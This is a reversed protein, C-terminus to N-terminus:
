RVKLDYYYNQNNKEDIYNISIKLPFTLNRYFKNQLNHSSFKVFSVFTSICLLYTSFLFSLISSFHLSSKIKKKKKKVSISVVSQKVQKKLEPKMWNIHLDENLTIIM